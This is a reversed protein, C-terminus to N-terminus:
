TAGTFQLPTITEQLQHVLNYCTTQIKDLNQKYELTIRM